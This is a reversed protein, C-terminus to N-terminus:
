RRLRKFVKPDGPKRADLALLLTGLETDTGRYLNPHTFTTASRYLDLIRDVQSATEDKLKENGGLRSLVLLAPTTFPVYRDPEPHRTGTTLLNWKDNVKLLSQNTLLNMLRLVGPDGSLLYLRSLVDLQVYTYEPDYGTGGVGTETLYGRGDAGDDRNPRRALKLGRDGWRGAPPSTAFRLQKRYLARLKKDGTARYTVYLSLAYGLNINGNVYWDLERHRLLFEASRQLSNRWRARTGAPLRDGLALLANGLMPAFFAVNIAESNDVDGYSGNSRQNTRIARDFTEIVAARKARDDLAGVAWLAAGLGAPGVACTWCGTPGHWTGNEYYRPDDAGDRRYYADFVFQAASVADASSTRGRPPAGDSAAALGDHRPTTLPAPLPAAASQAPAPRPERAKRDSGHGGCGAVAFRAGVLAVALTSSLHLV